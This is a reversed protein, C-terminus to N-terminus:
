LYLERRRLLRLVEVVAAGLSSSPTTLCSVELVSGLGVSCCDVVKLDILYNKM